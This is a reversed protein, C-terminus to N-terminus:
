ASLKAQPLSLMNAIASFLSRFEEEPLDGLRPHKHGEFAKAVVSWDQETLSERALPILQREEADMHAWVARALDDVKRHLAVLAEDDRAATAPCVRLAAEVEAVLQYERQHEAELREILQRSTPCRELLLPHLSQEEKPHHLREPFAHIYQLMQLVSDRDLAEGRRADDIASLMGRIVAALSRHEDHIMAVAKNAQAHPDNAQVRTVLLAVPSQEMVKRTQSPSLLARVGTAGHSAMVILDCGCKRAAELIAEAPRDSVAAYTDYRVAAASAAACAKALVASTDGRAHEAFARPDLALTLAGDSTAAYDAVAHVFTVRAMLAAALRIAEVYNATSLETGDVPVLLHRYM